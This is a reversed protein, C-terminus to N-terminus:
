LRKRVPRRRSKEALAQNDAEVKLKQQVLSEIDETSVASGGQLMQLQKQLAAIEKKSQLLLAKDDMVENVRASNKVDKARDAFMLTSRTEDAFTSAPTVACIMSTKGNGGLSPQLLKTLQSDRYPIHGSGGEALKKIVTGLTLLSKNIQGAEKLRVGEAGTDGVRESGALDVLNLTAARICLGAQHDEDDSDSGVEADDAIEVKSEITIRFLTHSRSSKENMNTQGVHRHAEGADMLQLIQDESDVVVETAKVYFGQEPHEHLRM